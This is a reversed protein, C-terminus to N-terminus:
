VIVCSLCGPTRLYRCLRQLAEHMPSYRSLVLWYIFALRRNGNSGFNFLCYRPSRTRYNNIREVFEEFAARDEDETATSKVQYGLDAGVEDGFDDVIVENDVDNIKFIEYKLGEQELLRSYASLVEPAISAQM